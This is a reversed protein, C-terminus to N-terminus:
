LIRRYNRKLKLIFYTFIGGGIIFAIGLLIFIFMNENKVNNINTNFIKEQVMNLAAFYLCQSKIDCYQYIGCKKCINNPSGCKNIVIKTNIIYNQAKQMNDCKSLLEESILQEFEEQTMNENWQPLILRKQENSFNSFNKVITDLLMQVSCNVEPRTEQYMGCFNCFCTNIKINNKHAYNVCNKSAKCKSLNTIINDNLNMIWSDFNQSISM